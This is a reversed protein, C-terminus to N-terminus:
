NASQFYIFKWYFYSIHISNKFTSSTSHLSSSTLNKPDKKRSIGKNWWNGSPFLRSEKQRFGMECLDLKEEERFGLNVSVKWKWNIEIMIKCLQSITLFQIVPFWGLITFYLNNNQGLSKMSAKSAFEIQSIWCQRRTNTCFSEGIVLVFFHRFFHRTISIRDDTALPTSDMLISFEDIKLWCVYGWLSSDFHLIHTMSFLVLRTPSVCHTLIVNKTGFSQTM